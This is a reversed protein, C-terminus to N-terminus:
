KGLIKDKVALTAVILGPFSLVHFGLSILYGETPAKIEEHVKGFIDEITAILQGKKVRTGLSVKYDIKGSQHLANITEIRLPYETRIKSEAVFPKWPESLMGLNQLINMIGAKGIRLFSEKVITPGGLEVVFAPINAYNFLCGTLSQDDSEKIYEKLPVENCVTVGFQEALKRTNMMLKKNKKILRDILIYPISNHSDAHIDIVLNPKVKLITEYIAAALKESPRGEKDGPFTRNLNDWESQEGYPLNRACLSLGPINAVPIAYISGRKLKVYKFIRHILEIGIVEEGHIVGVLFIKPGSLPAKKIMLPFGAKTGNYLNFIEVFRCEIKAKAM